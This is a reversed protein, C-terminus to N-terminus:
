RRRRLLVGFGLLSLLAASSPEPVASGTFRVENLGVRIDQNPSPFNTITTDNRVGIRVHTVGLASVTVTQFGSEFLQLGIEASAATYNVGEDTSFAYTFFDTESDSGPNGWRYGDNRTNLIDFSTLNYAGHLDFILTAAFVGDESLWKTGSHPGGAGFGPNETTTGNTLNAEASILPNNGFNSSATATVGAIFAANAGSSAFALAVFTIIGKKM